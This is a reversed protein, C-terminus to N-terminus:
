EHKTLITTSKKAKGEKKVAAKFEKLDRESFITVKQDLHRICFSGNISMLFKVYGGCQPCYKLEDYYDM